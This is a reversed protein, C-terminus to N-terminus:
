WIIILSFKLSHIKNSNLQPQKMVNPNNFLAMTILYPSHQCTYHHIYVIVSIYFFSDPSSLLFNQCGASGSEVCIVLVNVQQLQKVVLEDETQGM